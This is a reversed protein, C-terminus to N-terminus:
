DSRLVLWAVSHVLPIKLWQLIHLAMRNEGVASEMMVRGGPTSDILFGGSLLSRSM